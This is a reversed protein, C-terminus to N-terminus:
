NTQGVSLNLGHKIESIDKDENEELVSEKSEVQSINNNEKEDFLSWEISSSESDYDDDFKEIEEEAVVEFLDTETQNTESNNLASIEDEIDFNIDDEVEDLIHM